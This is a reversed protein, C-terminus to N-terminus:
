RRAGARKQKPEIEENDADDRRDVGGIHRRSSHGTSEWARDEAQAAARSQGFNDDRVGDQLVAEMQAPRQLERQQAQETAM